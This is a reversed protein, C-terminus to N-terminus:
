FSDKLQRVQAFVSVPDLPLDPFRGKLNQQIEQSDWRLFPNTAKEDDMTSPITSLGKERLSRAKQFKETLRRNNAELTVAFRLNNVTYEHGCHVLTDSPLRKLKGLSSQMQEPTGEFLRGCGAAFLTDGCFLNGPFLYAIHGKTHGPIFLIEAELEGVKIRDGEELPHSLGHIRDKDVRGGFVELSFQQLLGPNGGIHDWHHHTNLIAVLNVGEQRVKELVPDSESPDVIAAQNTKECVILYAYNDRLCPVQVVKM